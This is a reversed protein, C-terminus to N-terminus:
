DLYSTSAGAARSAAEVAKLKSTVDEMSKKINVRSDVEQKELEPILNGLQSSYKEIEKIEKQYNCVDDHTISSADKKNRYQEVKKEMTELFPRIETYYQSACIVLTDHSYKDAIKAIEDRNRTAMIDLLEFMARYIHNEASKLESKIYSANTIVRGCTSTEDAKPNLVRNFCRMLHDLADRTGLVAPPFSNNYREEYHLTLEKFERYDDVLERIRCTTEDDFEISM